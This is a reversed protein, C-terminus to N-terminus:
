PIAAAHTVARGNTLSFRGSAMTLVYSRPEGDFVFCFRYRFRARADGERHVRVFCGGGPVGSEITIGERSAAARRRPLSMFSLPMSDAALRIGLPTAFIARPMHEETVLESEFPAGSTQELRIDFRSVSAEFREEAVIRLVVPSTSAARAGIKERMDFVWAAGVRLAPFHFITARARPVAVISLLLVALWASSRLVNTGTVTM